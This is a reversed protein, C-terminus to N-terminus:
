VSDFIERLEHNSAMTTCASMASDLHAATYSSIGVHECEADLAWTNIEPGPVFLLKFRPLLGFSAFISLVATIHMVAVNYLKKDETYDCCHNPLYLSNPLPDALFRFYTVASSVIVGNVVVINNPFLRNTWVGISIWKALATSTFTRCEAPTAPRGWKTMAGYVGGVCIFFVSCIYHSDRFCGTLGHLRQMYCMEHFKIAHCCYYVGYFKVATIGDKITISESM